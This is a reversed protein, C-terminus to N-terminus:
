QNERMEEARVKLTGKLEYLREDINEKRRVGAESEVNIDDPGRYMELQFRVGEKRPSELMLHM